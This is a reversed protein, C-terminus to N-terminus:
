TRKERGILTALAKLGRHINVKVGPESIGCRVAAQAISLGDLKVAEISCRMNKPLREMLRRVDYSSEAGVNDDHAMIADAEELPEFSFSCIQQSLRVDPYANTGQKDAEVLVKTKLKIIDNAADPM